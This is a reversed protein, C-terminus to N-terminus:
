VHKSKKFFLIYITVIDIILLLILLEVPIRYFTPGYGFNECIIQCDRVCPLEIPPYYNGTIYSKFGIFSPTNYCTDVNVVKSSSFLIFFLIIQIILIIKKKIFSKM